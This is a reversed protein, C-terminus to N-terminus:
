NTLSAPESWIQWEDGEHVTLVALASQQVAEDLITFTEEATLIRRPRM